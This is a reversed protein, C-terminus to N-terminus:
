KFKKERLFTGFSNEFYYPSLTEEGRITFICVGRLTRVAVQVAM